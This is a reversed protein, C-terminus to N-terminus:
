LLNLSQNIQNIDLNAMADFDTTYFRPTLLSEGAPTKTKVANTENNKNSNISKTM